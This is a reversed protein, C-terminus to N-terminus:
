AALNNLIAALTKVSPNFEKDMDILDYITQRGLKTKAALQSKNVTRLHAILLDRVAELDGDVLAQLVSKKILQLNGLKKDYPNHAELLVAKSKILSKKQKNSTKLKGM